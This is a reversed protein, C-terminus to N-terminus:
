CAILDEQFIEIPHSAENSGLFEPKMKSFTKQFEKAKVKLHSIGNGLFLVM